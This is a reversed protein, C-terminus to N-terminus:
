GKSINSCGPKQGKVMGLLDFFLSHRCIVSVEVIRNSNAIKKLIPIPNDALKAETCIRRHPKTSIDLLSSQWETSCDMLYRCM